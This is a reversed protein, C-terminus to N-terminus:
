EYQYSTRRECSTNPLRWDTPLEVSVKESTIPRESWSLELGVEEEREDMEKEGRLAEGELRYRSRRLENM